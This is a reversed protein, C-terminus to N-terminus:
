AYCVVAIEPRVEFGDALVHGLVAARIHLCRDSVNIRREGLAALACDGRKLRRETELIDHM